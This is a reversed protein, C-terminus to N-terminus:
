KVIYTINAQRLVFNIQLIKSNLKTVKQTEKHVDTDPNHVFLFTFAWAIGGEKM